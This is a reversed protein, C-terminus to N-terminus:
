ISVTHWFTYRASEVHGKNEVVVYQTGVECALFGTESLYCLKGVTMLDVTM